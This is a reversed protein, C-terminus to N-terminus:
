KSKVGFSELTDERTILKDVNVQPLRQLIVENLSELKRIINDAHTKEMDRVLEEGKRRGQQRAEEVELEHRMRDLGIGHEITRLQRKYDEELEAWQRIRELLEAREALLRKKTTFM